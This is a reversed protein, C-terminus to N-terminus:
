GVFKPWRLKIGKCTGNNTVNKCSAFLMMGVGKIQSEKIPGFYRSDTSNGRNDGLVFYEDNGLKCEFTDNGYTTVTQKAVEETIFKEKVVKDNIYLVGKEYRITEGPLGIVRKVLKEDFGKEELIVIDFRDIGFMKYFLGDTIGKDGNKLTSHMSNGDVMVSLFVFSTILKAIVLCIVIMYVFNFKSKHKKYFEKFANTENVNVTKNEEVIEGEEVKLKM